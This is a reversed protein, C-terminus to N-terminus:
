LIPWGGIDSIILHFFFGRSFSFVFGEPGQYAPRVLKTLGPGASPVIGDGM